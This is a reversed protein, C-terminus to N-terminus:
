AERRHFIGLASLYEVRHETTDQRNKESLWKSYADKTFGPTALKEVENKMKYLFHEDYMDGSFRKTKRLETFSLRTPRRNEGLQNDMHKMLERAWMDAAQIKINERPAFSIEHHLYESEKWDAANRMRDYLKSANHEIPENNDFTFKVIGPPICRSAMVAFHEVVPVFCFYYPLYKVADPFLYEYQNLSIAVGWGMLKSTALLEIFGRYVHRQEYNDIDAAHIIKAGSMESWNKSLTEWQNEDGFLGAVAFVRTSQEDHSEDGFVSYM